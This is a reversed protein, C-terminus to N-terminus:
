WLRSLSMLSVKESDFEARIRHAFRKAIEVAEDLTVQSAM